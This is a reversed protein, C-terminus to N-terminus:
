AAANPGQAAKIGQLATLKRVFLVALVAAVVAILDAIAGLSSADRVEAAGVAKGYQYSALGHLFWGTVGALWWTVVPAGSVSRYSGDPANQASADWTERATRYPLFLNAIPVFWGGIAWGTSQSFGDPRFVEGNRRVRHFWVFFVVVTASTTLSQAFEALSNLFDTTAMGSHDTGPPDTLVEKMQQWRTMKGWAALLAFVAGVSLLATLAAALGQPSRLAPVPQSPLFPSPSPSPGPAISSM